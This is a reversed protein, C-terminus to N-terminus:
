SVRFITVKDQQFVEKLFSYKIFDTININPLDRTGIFIYDIGNELLFRRRFQDDSSTMFEDLLKMKQRSNASLYLHGNYVFKGTFGPILNSYYFSALITEGSVTNIELWKMATIDANNLYHIYRDPNKNSYAFIMKNINFVNTISLMMVLIVVFLIHLLSGKILKFFHFIGMAAFIAIPIHVGELFRRQTAFPSYILIGTLVIWVILILNETKKLNEKYIGFLAFPILLGFGYLINEIAPTPLTTQNLTLKAAPILFYLKYILGSAFLPLIMFKVWAFLRLPLIFMITNLILVFPVMYPHEIMLLAAFFSSIFLSKHDYKKLYKILYIINLLIFIQSYVFHPSELMMFFTNAEPVWLDISAPFKDRVLEGIGSSSLIILGSVLRSKEDTFYFKLFRFLILVFLLVGVIRGLHLSLIPEIGFYRSIIGLVYYVPRFIFPTKDEFSYLNPVIINGQKASIINAVHTYTDASNVVSRGLFYADKPSTLYGYLYPLSSIVFFLVGLVLQKKM